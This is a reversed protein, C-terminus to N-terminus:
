QNSFLITSELGDQEKLVMYNDLLEFMGMWECKHEFNIPIQATRREMHQYKYPPSADVQTTALSITREVSQVAIVQSQM